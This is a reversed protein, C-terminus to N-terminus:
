IIINLILFRVMDNKIIRTIYISAKKTPRNTKLSEESKCTSTDVNKASIAAVNTTQPKPISNAFELMYSGYQLTAGKIIRGQQIIILSNENETISIKNITAIM